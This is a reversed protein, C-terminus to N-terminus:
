RRERDDGPVLRAPDLSARQLAQGVVDLLEPQTLQRASLNVAMEPAGSTGPLATWREAQRCAEDLVWAGLAVILGTEEAVAIFEGPALLGREPHQWRVLAEGPCSQARTSTSRPQYHLVLEDRELARHLASEISLRRM